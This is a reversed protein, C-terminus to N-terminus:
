EGEKKFVGTETERYGISALVNKLADAAARFAAQGSPYGQMGRSSVDDTELDALGQFVKLHPELSLFIEGPKESFHKLLEAIHGDGMGAPVVQGTALLADKIHLYRIYPSLVPWAEEPRVGCQIFNAPDFVGPMRGEFTQYLDLCRETVDGYIGKENEHCAQIGADECIALMRGIGELVADRHSAPDEGAPMYFSFMRLLRVDLIDAIEMAHRLADLHPELPERIGIKGFPSGISSLKLGEGDLVRRIERVESLSQSVLSSGNVGRMEIYRVGNNRCAEVQGALDPAAEDLFGSLIFVAM